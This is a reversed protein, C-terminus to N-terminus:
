NELTITVPGDNILEVLMHAGFVGQLVTLGEARLSEAFHDILLNAQEPPMAATFSPRNGKRTDAFLTFQSVVLASGGSDLVSLNMKGAIDSFIRLRAIKGAMEEANEKTDQLGVGALILLGSGISAVTEDEVTVSACSVRQIVARM